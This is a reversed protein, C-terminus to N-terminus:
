SLFSHVGNTWQLQLHTQKKICLMVNQHFFCNLTNMSMRHFVHVSMGIIASMPSTNNSVFNELKEANEIQKTLLYHKAYDSLVNYLPPTTSDGISWFVQM